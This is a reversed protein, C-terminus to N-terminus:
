SPVEENHMLSLLGLMSSDVERSITQENVKVSMAALQRTFDPQWATMGLCRAFTRTLWSLKDPLLTCVVRGVSQGTKVEYLGISSQLERLMREILRPGMETFDFSDSFFLRRASEDDKLGLEERVGSIMSNLGLPMPRAFDVRGGNLIFSHSNEASLELVLVADQFEEVKAWSLLMGLTSASTLELRLPYVGAEVLIDQASKVQSRPAGCFFLDKYLRGPVVPQGDEANLAALVYERPNIRFQGTLIEEMVAQDVPKAAEKISVQRLLRDSPYIGCTARTYAGGKTRAMEEVAAGLEAPNESSLERFDEIVSGGNGTSVRLGRLVQGSMELYLKYKQTSM